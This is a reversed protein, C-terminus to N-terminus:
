AVALPAIIHRRAYHNFYLASPLIALLTALPIAEIGLGRAQFVHFLPLFALTGAVAFVIQIRLREAANMFVAGAYALMQTAIQASFATVEVPGVAIRDNSYLRVFPPVAWYAVLALLVGGSVSIVLLQRQIRRVQAHDRRALHAAISGWAVTMIVNFLTMPIQFIKNLIDYRAAASASFYTYALYTGLNFLVVGTLQLLFFGAGVRVIPWLTGMPHWAFLRRAFGLRALGLERYGRWFAYLANLLWLTAFTMALARVSVSEGMLWVLALWVLAQVMAARYSVTSLGIGQLINVGVMAPLAAFATLYLCAAELPFDRVVSVRSGGIAYLVILGLGILVSLYVASAVQRCIEAGDGRAAVRNRVVYGVGFDSMQIWALASVLTAWAGYRESGLTRVLLSVSLFGFGITAVRYSLSLWTERSAIM